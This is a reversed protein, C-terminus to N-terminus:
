RQPTSLDLWQCRVNEDSAWDMWAHMVRKDPLVIIHSNLLGCLRDFSRKIFDISYQKSRTKLVTRLSGMHLRDCATTYIEKIAERTDFSPKPIAFHVAGGEYPPKGMSLASQPFASASLKALANLLEDANYIKTLTKTRFREYPNHVLLVAISVIETIRRLQLYCFEARFTQEVRSRPVRFLSTELHLSQLRSKVEAKLSAYLM